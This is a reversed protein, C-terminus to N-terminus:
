LGKCPCFLTLRLAFTQLDFLGGFILGFHLLNFVCILHRVFLTQIQLQKMREKVHTIRGNTASAAPSGVKMPRSYLEKYYLRSTDDEKKARSIM